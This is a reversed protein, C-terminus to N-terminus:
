AGRATLHTGMVGLHVRQYYRQVERREASFGIPPVPRGIRVLTAAADRENRTATSEPALIEALLEAPSM